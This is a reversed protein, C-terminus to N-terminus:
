EKIIDKIIEGASILGAVPPVYSNSAPTRDSIKVPEEESYVVKVGEIGRDKLQKRMVKCLPCVKTKSIDVVKFLTPDLKNGTGMCSIVPVGVKKCEEIIALKGSVTDIADLVYSFASFDIGLNDSETIFGDIEIVKTSPRISKIREGAVATKKRGVTETTAYLQRNLNSEEYVDSDIVTITGVGSRILAEVAYSGVGGLGFVAVHSNNLKKIKEEGFLKISRELTKDMNKTYCPVRKFALRPMGLFTKLM